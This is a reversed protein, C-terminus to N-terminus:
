TRGPIMGDREGALGLGPREGDEHECREDKMAEMELRKEPSGTGSFGKVARQRAEPDPRERRGHRQDQEKGCDHRCPRRSSFEHRPQREEGDRQAQDGDRCVLEKPMELRAGDRDSGVVLERPDHRDIRVALAGQLNAGARRELGIPMIRQIEAAVSRRWGSADVPCAGIRGINRERADDALALRMPIGERPAVEGPTLIGGPKNPGDRVRVRSAFGRSRATKQETSGHSRAQNETFVCRPGPLLGNECQIHTRCLNALTSVLVTRLRFSRRLGDAHWATPACRTGVSHGGNYHKSVGEIM